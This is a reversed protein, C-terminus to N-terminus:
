TPTSGVHGKPCRMKLAGRIALEAVSRYTLTGLWVRVPSQPKSSWRTVVVVYTRLAPLPIRVWNGVGRNFTAYEQRINASGASNYGCLCLQYATAVM